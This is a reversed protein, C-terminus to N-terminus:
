RSGYKLASDFIACINEASVDPQINHIASLVYGGGPAMVEIVKRVEEEM